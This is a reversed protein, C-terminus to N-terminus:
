DVSCERANCDVHGMEGISQTANYTMKVNIQCAKRVSRHAHACSPQIEMAVHYAAYM